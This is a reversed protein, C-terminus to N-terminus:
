RRLPPGGCRFEPLRAPSRALIRRRPLDCPAAPVGPRPLRSPAGTAPLVSAGRSSAPGTICRPQRSLIRRGGSARPRRLQPHAAAPSTGRSPLRRGAPLPIPSPPPPALRSPPAPRTLNLLQSPPHPASPHPKDLPPDKKVPPKPAFHAKVEDDVVAHLEADTMDYPKKPEPQKEKPKNQKKETAATPSVYALVILKNKVPAVLECPARGTIDDM